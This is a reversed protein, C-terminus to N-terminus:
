KIIIILVKKKTAIARLSAVSGVNRNSANSSGHPMTAGYERVISDLETERLMCACINAPKEAMSLM